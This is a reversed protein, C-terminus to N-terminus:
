KSTKTKSIYRSIAMAVSDYNKGIRHGASFENISKRNSHSKSIITSYGITTKFVGAEFESAAIKKMEISQSSGNVFKTMLVPLPRIKPNLKRVDQMIKESVIRADLSWQDEASLVYWYWNSILLANLTLISSKQPPTDIIIFDFHSKLKRNFFHNFLKFINLDLLSKIEGETSDLMLTSALLKINPNRTDVIYDVASDGSSKLLSTVNRDDEVVDQQYDKALSSSTNAQADLDCVLVNSKKNALSWAINIATTSRGVGGKNCVLTIIQTKKSAM